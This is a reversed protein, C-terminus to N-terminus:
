IYININADKSYIKLIRTVLTLCYSIDVLFRPSGASSMKARSSDSFCARRERGSGWAKSTKCVCTRLQM